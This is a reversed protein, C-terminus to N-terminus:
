ALAGKLGSIGGVEFLLFAALGILGVVLVIDFTTNATAAGVGAGVAAGVTSGVSQAAAVVDTQATLGASGMTASTFTFTDSSGDSFAAIMANWVDSAVDSGDGSYSFTVNLYNTLLGVGSAWSATVDSVFDPANNALDALLTTISPQTLINGLTFTFTYTQGPVLNDSANVM